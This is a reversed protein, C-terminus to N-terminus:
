LHAIEAVAISLDFVSLLVLYFTALQHPDVNQLLFEGKYKLYKVHIEM